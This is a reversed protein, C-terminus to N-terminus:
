ALPLESASSFLFRVCLGAFYHILISYWYGGTWPILPFLMFKGLICEQHFGEASPFMEESSNYEAMDEKM